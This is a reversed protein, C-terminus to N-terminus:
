QKKKKFHYCEHSAQTLVLDGLVGLYVKYIETSLFFPSVLNIQAKQFICHKDV